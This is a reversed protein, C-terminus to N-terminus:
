ALLYFYNYYLTRSEMEGHDGGTVAAPSPSLLPMTAWDLPPDSSAACLLEYYPCFINFVKSVNSALHKM